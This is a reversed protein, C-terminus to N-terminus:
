KSLKSSNKVSECLFKPIDILNETLIQSLIQDIYQLHASLENTVLQIKRSVKKYENILQSDLINREQNFEIENTDIVKKLGTELRKVLLIIEKKHKQMLSDNKVEFDKDILALRKEIYSQSVLNASNQLEAALKYDHMIGASKARLIINEYEPSSRQTEKIRENAYMKELEAIENIQKAKLNEFNTNIQVRFSYINLEKKENLTSLKQKYLKILNRITEEFDTKITSIRNKQEEAKLESIQKEINEADLFDLKEIANKHLLRLEQIKKANPSKIVKPSASRSMTQSHKSPSKPSNKPTSVKLSSNM